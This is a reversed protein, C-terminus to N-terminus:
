EGNTGVGIMSVYGTVMSHEYKAHEVLRYIELGIEALVAAAGLVLGGVSFVAALTIATGADITTGSHMHM